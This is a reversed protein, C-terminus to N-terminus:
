TAAALPLETGDGAVRGCWTPSAAPEILRGRFAFPERGAAEALNM